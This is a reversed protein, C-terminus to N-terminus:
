RQADAFWTVHAEYYSHVSASCSVIRCSVQTSRKTCEALARFSASAKNPFGWSRGRAVGDTAGCGWAQSGTATGASISHTASWEPMHRSLPYFHRRADSNYRCRWPMVDCPKTAARVAAVDAILLALAALAVYALDTRLRM